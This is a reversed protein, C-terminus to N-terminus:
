KHQQFSKHHGAAEQRMGMAQYSRFLLYHEVEKHQNVKVTIMGQRQKALNVVEQYNKLRYQILMLLLRYDENAPALRIAEEINTKAEAMHNLNMNALARLSYLSDTLAGGVTEFDGLVQLSNRFDNIKLYLKGLLFLKPAVEGESIHKYIIRMTDVSERYEAIWQRYNKFGKKEGEEYVKLMNNFQGQAAYVQVLMDYHKFDPTKSLMIAKELNLVANLSDGLEINCKALMYYMSDAATSDGFPIQLLPIAKRYEELEIYGSALTIRTQRDTTDIAVVKELYPLSERVMGNIYNLAYMEKLYDTNNNNLEYARTYHYNASDIKDQSRYITALFYHLSDQQPNRVLCEHAYAIAANLDNRRLMVFSLDHYVAAAKDGASQLAMYYYKDANDFEKRIEYTSALVLYNETKPYQKVLASANTLAQDLKNAYTYAATKQKLLTEEDNQPQAMVPWSLFLFAAAAIFHMNQYLIKKM